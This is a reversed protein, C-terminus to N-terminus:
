KYRSPHMYMPYLVDEEQQVRITLVEAIKGLERFSGPDALSRGYLKEYGARNVKARKAWDGPVPYVSQDSM